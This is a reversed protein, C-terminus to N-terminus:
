FYKMSETLMRTPFSPLQTGSSGIKRRVMVKTTDRQLKLHLMQDTKLSTLAKGPPHNDKRELHKQPKHLFLAPVQQDIGGSGRFCSTTTEIGHGLM